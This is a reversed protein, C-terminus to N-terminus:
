QIENTYYLEGERDIITTRIVYSDRIDELYDEIIEEGAGKEFMKKLEEMDALMEKKSDYIFLPRLLTDVCVNLGIMCMVITIIFALTVKTRIGFKLDM